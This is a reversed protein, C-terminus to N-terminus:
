EKFFFCLSTITSGPALPVSAPSHLPPLVAGWQHPGPSLETGMDQHTHRQRPVCRWGAASVAMGVPAAFSMYSGLLTRALCPWPCTSPIHTVHACTGM